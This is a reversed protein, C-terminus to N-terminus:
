GLIDLITQITKQEMFQSFSLAISKSLSVTPLPKLIWLFVLLSHFLKLVFHIRFQMKGSRSHFLKIQVIDLVENKLAFIISQNTAFILIIDAMSM